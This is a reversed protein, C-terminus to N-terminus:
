RVTARRERVSQPHCGLAEAIQRTRPGDWSHAVINAHVTWDAPAHVSHTLQRVQRAEAADVPPRATLHKPM